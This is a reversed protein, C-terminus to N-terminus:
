DPDLEFDVVSANFIEETVTRYGDKRATITTVQDTGVVSCAM